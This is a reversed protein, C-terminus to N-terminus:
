YKYRKKNALMLIVTVVFSLLEAVAISVWVGDLGFPIPLIFVAAIQFVLTRLFSILASLLGNNLATFFGSGFVSIGAFLFCFSAFRFGRVTLELLEANYGVFLLSFPHALAEAAAFMALSMVTMIIISKKCLSKLEDYNGAGYHYSIIPATGVSYGLFVAFFLFNVYMLVGYAAVGNEDAFRMLQFNYLMSVISSSVNSLLESSGNLCVKGLSRGDYRTKGLRLLSSNKRAFYVLPIAGGVAQSVATAAAAGVVGWKAVAVFLADFLMNALGAAVTVGLGWKPKEATAFFIQFEFQLMYLPLAILIVRGYEVCTDLMNDSAGLWVAVPRVLFFGVAGLVVGSLITIYVLMSFLRNAKERDGEGLTKAILASGGTGFMFGIGGLIMLFPMIFNIAAFATDGVFNSVFLGDVVGYVSTFILMLISPLAYRLLRRYNFTDSLQIKM